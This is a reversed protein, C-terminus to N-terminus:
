PQITNKQGLDGVSAGAAGVKVGTTNPGLWIQGLAAAAQKKTNTSCATALSSNNSCAVVTFGSLDNDIIKTGSDYDRVNPNFQTGIAIAAGSAGSITNGRIKANAVGLLTIPNGWLTSIQDPSLPKAEITNNQIQVTLTPLPVGAIDEILNNNLADRAFFFSTVSQDHGVVFPGQKFRNNRFRFLTRAPIPMASSGSNINAQDLGRGNSQFRGQEVIGGQCGRLLNDRFIVNVGSLQDLGEWLRGCRYTKDEKFAAITNNSVTISGNINPTHDLDMITGVLASGLGYLVSNKITLNSMVPQRFVQWQEGSIPLDVSINRDPRLYYLGNHTNGRATVKINNFTTNFVPINDLNFAFPMCSDPGTCNRPAIPSEFVAPDHIPAVCRDPGLTTPDVGTDEKYWRAGNYFRVSQARGGPACGRLFLENSRGELSYSVGGLVHQDSVISSISEPRATISGFGHVTDTYARTGLAVNIHLNEVTLMRENFRNNALVIAGGGSAQYRRAKTQAPADGAFEVRENLDIANGDPDVVSKVVDWYNRFGGEGNLHGDENRQVPNDIDLVTTGKGAGSITGSFDLGILPKRVCYRGKQLQITATMDASERQSAAFDLACQLNNTDDKSTAKIPNLADDADNYSCQDPYDADDDTPLVTWNGDGDDLVYDAAAAADCVGVPTTVCSSLEPFAECSAAKALGTVPALSLAMATFYISKSHIM